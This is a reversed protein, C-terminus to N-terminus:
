AREALRVNEDEAEARLPVNKGGESVDCFTVGENSNLKVCGANAADEMSRM